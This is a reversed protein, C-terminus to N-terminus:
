GWKLTITGQNKANSGRNCNTITYLAEDRESIM